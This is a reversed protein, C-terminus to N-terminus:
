LEVKFADWRSGNKIEVLFPISKYEVCDWGDNDKYSYHPFDVTFVQMAPPSQTVSIWCESNLTYEENNFEMDWGSSMPTWSVVQNDDDIHLISQVESVLLKM